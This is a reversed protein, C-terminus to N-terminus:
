GYSIAQAHDPEILLVVRDTRLPYAKGTYKVAIRDIVQWAEDGDLLSTVRGRIQAMVYPKEHDVLSLAVRPDRGVNRAKRASPSTLIAIRDGERGVWVPVSHPAGDPLLTAVHAYNVGDILRLVDPALAAM